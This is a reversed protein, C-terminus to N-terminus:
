KVMETVKAKNSQERFFHPNSIHMRKHSTETTRQPVGAGILLLTDASVLQTFSRPKEVSQTQDANNM